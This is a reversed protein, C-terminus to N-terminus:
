LVEFAGAHIVNATIRWAQAGTAMPRDLFDPLRALKTVPLPNVQIHDGQREQRRLGAELAEVDMSEQVWGIVAEETLADFAVFDVKEVEPTFGCTGYSSATHDGVTKSRPFTPEYSCTM